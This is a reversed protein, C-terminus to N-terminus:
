LSEALKVLREVAQQATLASGPDGHKEMLARAVRQLDQIIDSVELVLDPRRVRKQLMRHRMYVTRALGAEQAFATIQDLEEDSLRIERKKRLQAPLKRPRGRNAGDHARKAM